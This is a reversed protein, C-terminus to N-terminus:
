RLWNQLQIAFKRFVQIKARTAFDETESRLTAFVIFGESVCLGLHIKM